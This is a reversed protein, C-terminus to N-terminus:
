RVRRLRSRGDRRSDASAVLHRQMEGHAVRADANGGVLLSTMKLAKSCASLEVVRWYPPVPGPGPWRTPARRNSPRGSTPRFRLPDPLVKWKVARKRGRGIGVAGSRGRAPRPERPGARAPRRRCRWSGAIWHSISRLQRCAASPRARRVGLGPRVARCGCRAPVGKGSTRVSALMGSISPKESAPLDLRRRM